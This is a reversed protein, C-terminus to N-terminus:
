LLINFFDILLLKSLYLFCFFAISFLIHWLETKECLFIFLIFIIGKLDFLKFEWILLLFEHQIGLLYQKDDVAFFWGKIIWLKFFFNLPLLLMKLLSLLFKQM